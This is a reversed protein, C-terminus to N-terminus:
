MLRLQSLEAPITVLSCALHSPNMDQFGCFNKYGGFRGLQSHSDVWGGMWHTAHNKGPPLASLAHLQGRVEM